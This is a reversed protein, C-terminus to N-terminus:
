KEHPGSKVFSPYHRCMKAVRRSIDALHRRFTREVDVITSSTPPVRIPQLPQHYELESSNRRRQGSKAMTPVVKPLSPRNIRLLKEFMAGTHQTDGRPYSLRIEMPYRNQARGNDARFEIESFKARCLARPARIEVINRKEQESKQRPAQESKLRPASKRRGRAIWRIADPCRFNLEM